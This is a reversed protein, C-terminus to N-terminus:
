IFIQGIVRGLQGNFSMNLDAINLVILLKLTQKGDM